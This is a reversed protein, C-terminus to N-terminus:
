RVPFDFYTDPYPEDKLSFHWWEWAYPEFGSATMADRLLSRNDEQASTIKTRGETVVHSRAGMFDFITGMDLEQRTRGDVVTLDVASGRTHGSRKAIYGLKFLDKKDVEPYHIPKRRIDEADEAWRVFDDV